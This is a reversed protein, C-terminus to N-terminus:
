EVAGVGKLQEVFAAVDERAVDPEVQYRDCLSAAVTDIDTDNELLDWIYSATGNVSIMGNFRRTAEGVAVIVTQEGITRKIFSANRKM